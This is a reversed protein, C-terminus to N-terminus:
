SGHSAVCTIKVVTGDREFEEGVQLGAEEVIARRSSQSPTGSGFRLDGTPEGCEIADATVDGVEAGVGRRGRVEGGV